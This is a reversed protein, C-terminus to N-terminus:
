RRRTLRGVAGELRRREEAQLRLWDEYRIDPGFQEKKGPWGTWLLDMEESETVGVKQEPIGVAIDERAGALYLGVVETKWAIGHPMTPPADHENQVYGLTVHPTYSFRHSVPAGVAELEQVLDARFEDLGPAAVNAFIATSGDKESAQFKGSGTIRIEFPKTRAAVKRVAERLRDALGEPFDAVKGLYALTLHVESPEVPKGPGLAALQKAVDPPAPFAVMASTHVEETRPARGGPGFGCDSCDWADKEESYRMVGGCACKESEDQPFPRRMMPTLPQAAGAIAETAIRRVGGLAVYESSERKPMKNAALQGNFDKFFREKDKKSDWDYGPSISGGGAGPAAGGLPVPVTGVNAAVTAEGRLVGELERILDETNRASM